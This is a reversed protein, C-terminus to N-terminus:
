SNESCKRQQIVIEFIRSIKEFKCANGRLWFENEQIWKTRTDLIRGNRKTDLIRGIGKTDLIRGNRKTDLIRGIGKTDPIRGRDHTATQQRLNVASASSQRNSARNKLLLRLHLTQEATTRAM